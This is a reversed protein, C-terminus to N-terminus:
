NSGTPVDVEDGSGIPEITGNRQSVWASVYDLSKGVMWKGIPAAESVIGNTAVMGFVAYPLKVQCLTKFIPEGSM